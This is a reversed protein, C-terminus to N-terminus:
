DHARAALGIMLLKSVRSAVKAWKADPHNYRYTDLVTPVLIM